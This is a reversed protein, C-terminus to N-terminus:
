RDLLRYISVDGQRTLLQLRRITDLEKFHAGGGAEEFAKQHVVIHTTGLRHLSTLSEDSPFGRTAQYSAEYSRPRFGSYGNLLPHWHSTSYVMYTTNLFWQQPLPFPLEAVVALPQPPCVTSGPTDWRPACRKAM